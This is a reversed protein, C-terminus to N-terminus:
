GGILKMHHLYANNNLEQGGWQFAKNHVSNQIAQVLTGSQLEQLLDTEGKAFLCNRMKGDASIRLRSCSGCFPDSLTTIFSFHGEYGIVKSHQSSTSDSSATACANLEFHRKIATLMEAKTVVNRQSWNNSQFPMFEIFRVEVPYDRTWSVFETLEDDNVGRMVVVNIKLRFQKQLLLHINSMVRHFQNFGTIKEFREPMLTDLSVNVTRLNFEQMAEIHRNVLVGNTTLALEIDEGASHRVLQVLRSFDPRMLPEGGTLRIKRIGLASFVSVIKAIEEPTMLKARSGCQMASAPNCYICNLNCADTLSIRLYDHNRKYRDVLM